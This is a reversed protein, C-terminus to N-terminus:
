GHLLDYILKDSIDFLSILMLWLKHLCNTFNGFIYDGIDNLMVDIVSFIDQHAHGFGLPYYAKAYRPNIIGSFNPDVTTKPDFHVRGNPRVLTAQTKM